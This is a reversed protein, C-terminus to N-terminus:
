GVVVPQYETVPVEVESAVNLTTAVPGVLPPRGVEGGWATVRYVLVLSAQHSGAVQYVYSCNKPASRYDAASRVLVGRGDCSVPAAGDGPDFRLGVANARVHAEACRVGNCALSNSEVVRDWQARSVSFYFPMGPVPSKGPRVEPSFLPDPVEYDATDIAQAVLANVDPLDPITNTGVPCDGSVCRRRVYTEAGCQVYVLQWTRVVRETKTQEGTAPDITIVTERDEAGPYDPAIAEPSECVHDAHVPASAHGGVDSSGNTASRRRTDRVRAVARQARVDVSVSITKETKDRGGTSGANAPMQALVLAFFIAITLRM